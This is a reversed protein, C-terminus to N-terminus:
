NTRCAQAIRQTYQGDSRIINFFEKIFRKMGSLERESFLPQHKDIIGLITPELNLYQNRVSETVADGRCFGRYIREHVSEIGLVPDASAYPASVFGSMDFDYAVPLLVNSKTRFLKANHLYVTSYDTNGIMYQFMDFRIACTDQLM